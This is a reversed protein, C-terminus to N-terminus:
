KVVLTNATSDYKYNTTGIKFTNLGSTSWNDIQLNGGEVTLTLNGGFLSTTVDAVTLGETSLMVSDVSSGDTIEDNGDNKGFWFVDAGSGGTMTDNGGSGGWLNDDGAGGNLSDNGTTGRLIDNFRSGVATTIGQQDKLQIDVAAGSREGTIIDNGTIGVYKYSADYDFTTATTSALKFTVGDNTQYTMAQALSATYGGAVASVTLANAADVTIVGNTNFTLDAFRLDSLHVVDGVADTVTTVINDNGDTAGFWYQDAGAGGVLKDDGASGGWISDAGAGGSITDNYESGRLLDGYASGTIGRFNTFYNTQYSTQGIHINVGASANSASITYADTATYGVYTVGSTYTYTSDGNVTHKFNIGDKTQFTLASALDATYGSVTLKNASDIVFVGNGGFTIEGFNIDSLHIVDGAANTVTESIVDQGDTAGYWYQDAGVGGTLTDDGASGGWLSDAGAGGIITDNGESGRLLDAFASGNIGTIGKYYNTQYTTQGLHINVGAAAGSANISDNDGIGVFYAGSAYAFATADTAAALKFSIGDQTRYTVLNALSVSNSITLKSDSAFIAATTGGTVTGFTLSAFNIDNLNVIDGTAEGELIALTDNNDGRGFWYQDAGAGGNLVDNGGAGGWISDAGAGGEITDNGASGRLLDAFASGKVGRMGSYYNTQYDTSGLNINVAAAAGSANVIDDDGLGQMYIGAQYVLSGAVNNGPAVRFNIGDKTQYTLNQYVVDANSVTLTSGSATIVIENKTAVSAVTLSAYNTDYFSIIDGAADAATSFSVVDNGDGRSFRYTDSGLGGELTDNGAGGWLNDNDAGGILVDDGAGGILTDNGANGVLVDNGSGGDLSDAGSGGAVVDKAIGGVFKWGSTSVAGTTSFMVSVNPTIGSMMIDVGLSQAGAVQQADGNSAWQAYNYTTLYSSGVGGDSVYTLSGTSTSANYDANAQYSYNYAM